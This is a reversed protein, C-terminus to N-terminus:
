RDAVIIEALEIGKCIKVDDQSTLYELIKKYMRGGKMQLVNDHWNVTIINFDSDLQRSYNLTNEFTAIIQEEKIKMYTF